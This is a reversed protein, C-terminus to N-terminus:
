SHESHGSAVRSWLATPAYGLMRRCMRSFHALDAFGAAHAATTLDVPGIRALAHLLRRWLVYRGMPVGIDRAFLARFHAASLELRTAQSRRGSSPTSCM